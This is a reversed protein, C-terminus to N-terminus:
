CFTQMTSGCQTILLYSPVQDRMNNCQGSISKEDTIFNHILSFLSHTLTVGNVHQLLLLSM